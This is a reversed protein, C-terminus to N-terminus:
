FHDKKSGNPTYYFGDEDLYGGKVEEYERDIFNKM